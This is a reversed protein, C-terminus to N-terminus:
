ATAGPARVQVGEQQLTDRLARAFAVADPRDVLEILAMPAADAVGADDTVAAPTGKHFDACGTALVLMLVVRRM